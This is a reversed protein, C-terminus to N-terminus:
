IFMAIFFLTIVMVVSPKFLTKGYVPRIRFPLSNIFKDYEARKTDDKLIEYANSIDEFKQKAITCTFYSGMKM